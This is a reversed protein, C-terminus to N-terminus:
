ASHVWMSKGCHRCVRAELRVLEACDSCRQSRGSSLEKAEIVAKNPAAVLIAITGVVPSLFLALFFFGVTSRGKNGAIAGAMFSLAVWVIVFAM